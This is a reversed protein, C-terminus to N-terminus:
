HGQNMAWNFLTIQNDIADRQATLTETLLNRMVDLERRLDQIEEENANVDNEISAIDDTTVMESIEDNKVFTYDMENVLAEVLEQVAEYIKTTM